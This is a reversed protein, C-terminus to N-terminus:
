LAGGKDSSEDASIANEPIVSSQESINATKRSRITMIGAAAACVAAALLIIWAFRKWQIVASSGDAEYPIKCCTIIDPDTEIWKLLCGNAPWVCGGAPYSQGDSARKFKLNRKRGAQLLAMFEDQKFSVDESLTEHGQLDTKTKPIEQLLGKAKEQVAPMSSILLSFASFAKEREEPSNGEFIQCFSFRIARGARDRNGFKMGSVVLFIKGGEEFVALATGEEPIIRGKHRLPAFEELDGLQKRGSDYFVRYDESLTRTVFRFKIDTNM